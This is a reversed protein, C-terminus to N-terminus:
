NSKETFVSRIADGALSSITQTFNKDKATSYDKLAGLYDKNAKRAKARYLHADPYDPNLNITTSLDEVAAEFDGLVYKNIGRLFYVDPNKPFSGVLKDCLKIAELNQNGETFEVVVYLYDQLSAQSKGAPGNFLFVLLLISIRIM